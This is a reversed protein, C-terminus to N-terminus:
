LRSRIEDLRKSAEPDTVFVKELKECAYKSCYACNEINKERACKRIECDKCFLRGSKTKCGDCDVIDEPKHEVGYHEKIAQAIEARMKARKEDNKERTALLIPCTHCILGCYAIIEDM